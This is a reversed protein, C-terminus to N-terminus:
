FELAFLGSFQAFAITFGSANVTGDAKVVVVGSSNNFVWETKPRYGTPLTFIISNLGGGTAQGGVWVGPRPYAFKVYSLPPFGAGRNAWAGAFGVGPNVTHWTEAPKDAGVLVNLVLWTDAFVLLAVVDGVTPVYDALRSATVSGGAVAVTVSTTTFATVTGVRLDSPLDTKQATAAVLASPGAAPSPMIPLPPTTM